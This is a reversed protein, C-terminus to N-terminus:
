RQVQRAKSGKKLEEVLKSAQEQVDPDNSQAAREAHPLSVSAPAGTASLALAYNLQAEENDPDARVVGELLHRAKEPGGPQTFYLNALDIAVSADEGVNSTFEELLAIAAQKDGLGERSRALARVVDSSGPVLEYAPALMEQAQEYRGLMLLCIGQKYMYDPNDPDLTRLEYADQLASHIEGGLLHLSFLQEQVVALQPGYQRAKTIMAMAGDVDGLGVKARSMMVYPMADQPENSLVRGLHRSAAEFDERQLAIRGLEYQIFIDEPALRELHQYEAQAGDLDGQATLVRALNFHEFYQAQPAGAVQKMKEVASEDGDYFDLMLWHSQAELNEPQLTLVHRVAERVAPADGQSLNARALGVWCAVDKPDEQTGKQFAAIADGMLGMNLLMAGQNAAASAM